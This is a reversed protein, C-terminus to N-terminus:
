SEEAFGATALPADRLEKAKKVNEPETVESAKSANYVGLRSGNFNEKLSTL